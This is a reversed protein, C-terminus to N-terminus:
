KVVMMCIMVPLPLIQILIDIRLSCAFLKEMTHLLTAKILLIIAVAHAQYQGLCM